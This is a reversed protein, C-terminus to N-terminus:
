TATPGEHLFPWPVLTPHRAGLPQLQLLQKSGRANFDAPGVAKEAELSTGCNTIELGFVAPNRIPKCGCADEILQPRTLSPIQAVKSNVNKSPQQDMATLPSLLGEPVGFVYPM